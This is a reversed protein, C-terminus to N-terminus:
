EGYIRIYEKWIGECRDNYMCGNCYSFKRKDLKRYEHWLKGDTQRFQQEIIQLSLFESQEEQIDDCEVGVFCRPFAQLIVPIKHPRNYFAEFVKRCEDKTLDVSRVLEDPFSVCHPYAFIVSDACYKEYIDCIASLDDTYRTLVIKGIVRVKNIKLLELSAITNDFGGESGCIWDHRHANASHLPIMFELKDKSLDDYCCLKEVAEPLSGNSQIQVACGQRLSFAALEPLDERLTPEGGTFVIKKVGNSVANKITIVAEDFSLDNMNDKVANNRKVQIVCHKCLQNCKYGLVIHSEINEGIEKM